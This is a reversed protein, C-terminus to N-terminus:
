IEGAPKRLIMEKKKPKLKGLLDEIQEEVVVRDSQIDIVKGENIGIGTGKKIIYGKGTSDIVLAKNGSGALIIGSVKLQSLDVKELPTRPARRIRKKRKQVAKEMFLPVFPDTKGVPNYAVTTDLPKMKMKSTVVTGKKKTAKPKSIDAKPKIPMGTKTSVTVIPKETAVPGKVPKKKVTPVKVPKQVPGKKSPATTKKHVVKKSKPKIKKSVVKPRKPPKPKDGCGSAGVMIFVCFTVAGIVVIIKQMIKNKMCGEEKRLVDIGL